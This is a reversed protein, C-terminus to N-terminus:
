LINFFNYLIYIFRFMTLLYEKYVVVINQKKLTTIMFKYGNTLKYNYKNVTVGIWLCIWLVDNEYSSYFLCSPHPWIIGDM